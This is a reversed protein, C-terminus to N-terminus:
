VRIFRVESCSSTMFWRKGFAWKIRNQSLRLLSKGAPNQQGVFTKVDQEFVGRKLFNMLCIGVDAAPPLKDVLLQEDPHFGGLLILFRWKGGCFFLNQLGHGQTFGGFLNGCLSIGANIRYHGMALIDEALEIYVIGLFGHAIGYLGTNYVYHFIIDLSHGRWVM